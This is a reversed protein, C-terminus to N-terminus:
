LEDEPTLIWAHFQQHHDNLVCVRCSEDFLQVATM